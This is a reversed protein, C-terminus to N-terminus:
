EEAYYSLVHDRNSFLPSVNFDVCLYQSQQGVPVEQCLEYNGFFIQGVEKSLGENGFTTVYTEPGFDEETNAVQTYALTDQEGTTNCTGSKLTLGSFAYADFTLVRM